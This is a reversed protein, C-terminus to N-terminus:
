KCLARGCRLSQLCSLSCDRGLLQGTRVFHGASQRVVVPPTSHHNLPPSATPTFLQSWFSRATNPHPNERPASKYIWPLKQRKVNYISTRVFSLCTEHSSITGSDWDMFLWTVPSLQSPSKELSPPKTASKLARLASNHQRICRYRLM